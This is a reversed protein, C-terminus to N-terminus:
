RDAFRTLLWDRVLPSANRADINEGRSAAAWYQSIEAARAENWRKHLDGDNLAALEQFMAERPGRQSEPLLALTERASARNKLLAACCFALDSV